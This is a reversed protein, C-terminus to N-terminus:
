PRRSHYHDVILWIESFTRDRTRPSVGRLWLLPPPGLRHESTSYSTTVHNGKWSTVVIRCCEITDRQRLPPYCLVGRTHYAKRRWRRWGHDHDQPAMSM